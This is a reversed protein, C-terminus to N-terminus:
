GDSTSFMGDAIAPIRQPDVLLANEECKLYERFVPLDSTIVPVGAAMAELVVLGWGEKVSPFTFVDAARYLSDIQPDSVTGALFLDQDLVLGSHSLLQFFEARYPRYDLLTEGGALLLVPKRGGAILKDRISQFALLLRITNKRPEIGGINLFAVEDTLGM